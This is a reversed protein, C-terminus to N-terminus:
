YNNEHWSCLSYDAAIRRGEQDRYFFRKEAGERFIKGAADAAPVAMAKVTGAPM